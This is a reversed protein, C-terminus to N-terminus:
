IKMLDGLDKKRRRSYIFHEAFIIRLDEFTRISVPPLLYFWTLAAGELGSPFLHCMLGDYLEYLAMSHRFALIHNYPDTTGNCLKFKPQVFRHPLQERLIETSFPSAFGRIAHEVM